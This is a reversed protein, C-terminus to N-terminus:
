MKKSVAAKTPSTKIWQYANNAAMKDCIDKPVGQGQLKGGVSECSKKRVKEWELLLTVAKNGVLVNMTNPLEKEISSIAGDCKKTYAAEATRAEYVIAIHVSAMEKNGIKTKVSKTKWGCLRSGSQAYSETASIAICMAFVGVACVTSWLMKKM